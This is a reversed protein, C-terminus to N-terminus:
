WIGQIETGNLSFELTQLKTKATGNSIFLVLSTQFRLNQDKKGVAVYKWM